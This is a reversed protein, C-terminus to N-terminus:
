GTWDRWRGDCTEGGGVFAAGEARVASLNAGILSTKFFEARSLNALFLTAGDLFAGSLDALVLRAATLDAKSLDAYHLVAGTFDARNLDTGIFSASTLNRDSLDVGSLDFGDFVARMGERGQSDVWLGHECLVRELAGGDLRGRRRVRAGGVGAGGDM